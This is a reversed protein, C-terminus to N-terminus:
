SDEKLHNQMKTTDTNPVLLFSIISHRYQNKIPGVYHLTPKIDIGAASLCLGGILITSTVEPQHAYLLQPLKLGERTPNIIDECFTLSDYDDDNDWILTLGCKDFHPKEEDWTDEKKYRVIRTAVTLQNHKGYFIKTIGPHDKELVELISTFYEKAMQDIKLLDDFFDKVKPYSCLLEAYKEKLLTYHDEIFQFYIRNHINKTHIRPDRFSPPVSCYRDSQEEVLNFTKESDAMANFFDNDNTMLDIFADYKNYLGYYNAKLFTRNELECYGKTQLSNNILSNDKMANTFFSYFILCLFPYNKQLNKLIKM